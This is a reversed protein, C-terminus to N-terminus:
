GKGENGSKGNVIQHIRPLSLGTAAAIARLSAKDAPDAPAHADRIADDRRQTATVVATTAKAARRLNATATASM